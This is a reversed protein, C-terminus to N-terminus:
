TQVYPCTTWFCLATAHSRISTIHSLCPVVVHPRISTIHPYICYFWTRFSRLSIRIFVTFSCAIPNFHHASLCYLYMRDSQLSTRYACHLRVAPEPESLRLGTTWVGERKGGVTVFVYVRKWTASSRYGDTIRCRSVGTVSNRQIANLVYGPPPRSIPSPLSFTKPSCQPRHCHYQQIVADIYHLDAHRGAAATVLCSLNLAQLNSQLKLIIIPDVAGFIIFIPNSQEPSWKLKMCVSLCHRLEYDSKVIKRVCGCVDKRHDLLKPFWYLRKCCIWFSTNPAPFNVRAYCLTFATDESITEKPSSSGARNHWWINFIYISYCSV